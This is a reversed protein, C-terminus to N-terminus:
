QSSYGIAEIQVSAQWVPGPGPIAVFDAAPLVTWEMLRCVEEFAPYDAANKLYVCIKVVNELGGIGAADAIQRLRDIALVTQAATGPTREFPGARLAIEALEGSLDSGSAPFIGRQDYGLIGSMFVVPGAAVAAPAAFPAGDPWEIDRRTVADNALLATPEIEILTGRHGVENYNVISLAPPRQPFFHRYVRHFTAFDRVDQLFVTLLVIDALSSGIGALVKRIEDLTYWTQAAIPGDRSDPHSRGRQLFRGEPPVDDYGMVVPKGPENTKVPIFGALFALPGSGVAQSYFSASPLGPDDFPTLVRRASFPSEPDSLTAIGTIGYWKSGEGPLGSVGVGSSPPPVPQWQMRTTEYVPFFRKDKQWIHQRLLQEGNSGGAILLRDLNVHAEWADAAVEGEAMDAVFYNQELKRGAEPLDSFRTLRQGNRNGRVGSLFLLGGASTAAPYDPFPNAYRDIEIRTIASKNKDTM